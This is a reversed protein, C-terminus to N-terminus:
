FCDLMCEGMLNSMIISIFPIQGRNSGRENM